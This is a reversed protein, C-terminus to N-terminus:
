VGDIEQLLQLIGSIDECYYDAKHCDKSNNVQVTTFGAAKAGAIDDNPNDGIMIANKPACAVQRAYDFIERRPKAFGVEASVVMGQMYDGVGIASAVAATEPFNNSLLYCEYGLERLRALTPLTNEFLRHHKPAIIYERILPVMARAATSQAGLQMFMDYFEADCHGWWGVTQLMERMDREPYCYWPLRQRSLVKQIEDDDAAFGAGGVSIATRVAELWIHDPHVLTGHFDFFLVPKESNQIPLNEKSHM